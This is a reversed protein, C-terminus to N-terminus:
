SQNHVILAHPDTSAQTFGVATTGAHATAVVGNLTSFGTGAPASHHHWSTGDFHYTTAVGADAGVAWIDHSSRASVANLLLAAGSADSSIHPESALSWSHGNYHEITGAEGVAWINSSSVATVARLGVNVPNDPDAQPLEPASVSQWSTGNWHEVLPENFDDGRSGVAWANSSSIATIANFGNFDTPAQAPTPVVSWAHGNWHEALLAPGDAGTQRGVAWVNSSSTGAVATFAGGAVSPLSVSHWSSGNYHLAIATTAQTESNLSSGVAWIDKSSLAAVGALRGGQPWLSPASVIKWGSGSNHEILPRDPASETPDVYSGVAWLNTSSVAAVADLRTDASTHAASVASWRNPTSAWAPTAAVTVIASASALSVVGVVAAGLKATGGKPRAVFDTRARM